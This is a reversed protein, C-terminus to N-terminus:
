LKAAKLDEILRNLVKEILEKDSSPLKSRLIHSLYPQDGLDAYSLLLEISNM